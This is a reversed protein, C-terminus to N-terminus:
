ELVSICANRNVVIGIQVNSVSRRDGSRITERYSIRNGRRIVSESQLVIGNSANYAGGVLLNAQANGRSSVVYSRIGARFFPQNRMARTINLEVLASSPDIQIDGRRINFSRRAGNNNILVITFDLNRVFNLNCFAPVNASLAEQSVETEQLEVNDSLRDESCSTLAFIITLIFIAQLKLTKM